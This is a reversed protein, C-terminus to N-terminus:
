KGTFAKRRDAVSVYDKYRRRSPGLVRGADASGSAQDNTSPGNAAQAIGDPQNNNVPNIEDTQKAQTDNVATVKTVQAPEAQSVVAAERTPARDSVEGDDVIQTPSAEALIDSFSQSM